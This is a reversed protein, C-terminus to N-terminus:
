IREDQIEVPDMKLIEAIKNMQMEAAFLAQPGGFGRFAGNPLNNTYIAM